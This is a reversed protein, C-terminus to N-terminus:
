ALAEQGNVGGDVVIEVNLAMECGAAREPGESCFSEAGPSGGSRGSDSDPKGIKTRGFETRTVAGRSALEPLPMFSSQLYPPLRHRPAPAAPPAEHSKPQSLEPPRVPPLPPHDQASASLIGLAWFLFAGLDV